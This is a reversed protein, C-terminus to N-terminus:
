ESWTTWYGGPAQNETKMVLLKALARTSSFLSRISLRTKYMMIDPSVDAINLNCIIYMWPWGNTSALLSQTTRLCSICHQLPSRSSHNRIPSWSLQTSSVRKGVRADGYGNQSLANQRVSLWGLQHRHQCERKSWRRKRGCLCSRDQKSRTRGVTKLM